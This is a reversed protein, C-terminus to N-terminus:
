KSIEPGSKSKEGGLQWYAVPLILLTFVTSGILGFCIVTGLPGWLLSGSTILPIVGVAAASATLFIPRLRRKGAALAAEKVPIGSRILEEAYSILIIGNRVVIGFLGIFGAFATVGFPYGMILMGLAASFMSLPMTGMIVLALRITKFQFLLILFIFLLSLLLGYAMPVFTESLKETEGGYNIHVDKPLEINNIIKEVSSQVSSALQGFAVDVSITVTPRGNRRGVRGETFGPKPKAVQRM